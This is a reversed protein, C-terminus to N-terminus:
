FKCQTICLYASIKQQFFTLLKQLAFAVWMKDAFFILSNYISDMLVTLSIVRLTSTLSVVSQVVPGLQRKLSYITQWELKKIKSNQNSQCAEKCCVNHGFDIISANIGPVQPCPMFVKAHQISINASYKGSFIPCSLENLNHSSIIQIFHLVTKKFTLIGFYNTQNLPVPYVNIKM